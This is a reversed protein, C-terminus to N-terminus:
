IIFRTYKGKDAVSEQTGIQMPFVLHSAIINKDRDEYGCLVALTQADDELENHEMVIDMFKQNIARPWFIKQKKVMSEPNDPKHYIPDLNGPTGSVLEINERLMQFWFYLVM